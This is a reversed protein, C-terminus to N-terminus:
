CGLEEVDSAVLEGVPAAVPRHLLVGARETRRRFDAAACNVVTEADEDILGLTKRLFNQWIGGSLKAFEAARRSFILRIGCSM